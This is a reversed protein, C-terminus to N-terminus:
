RGHSCWSEPIKMNEHLNEGIMRSEEESWGDDAPVPIEHGAAARTRTGTDRGVSVSRGHGEHGVATRNEVSASRGSVGHGVAARSKYDRSRGTM